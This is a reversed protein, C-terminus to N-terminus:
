RSIRKQARANEGAAQPPVDIIVQGAGTEKLNKNFLITGVVDKVNDCSFIYLSIGDCNQVSLRLKKFLLGSTSVSVIEDWNFSFVVDLGKSFLGPPKKVFLFRTTTLVLIGDMRQKDIHQTGSYFCSVQEDRNLVGSSYIDNIKM